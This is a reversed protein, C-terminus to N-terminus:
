IDKLLSQFSKDTRKLAALHTKTQQPEKQNYEEPLHAMTNNEDDTKRYRVKETQYISKEM